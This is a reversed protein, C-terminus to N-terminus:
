WARYRLFCCIALQIVCAGNVRGFTLVLDSAKHNNDRHLNGIPSSTAICLFTCRNSISIGPFIVNLTFGSRCNTSCCQGHKLLFALRQSTTICQIEKVCTRECKKELRHGAWKWELSRAYRDPYINRRANGLSPLLKLAVLYPLFKPIGVPASDIGCTAM